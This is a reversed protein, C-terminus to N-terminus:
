KDHGEDYELKGAWKAARKKTEEIRILRNLADTIVENKKKNTLKEAKSLLRENVEISTRM